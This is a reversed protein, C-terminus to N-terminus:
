GWRLNCVLLSGPSPTSKYGPPYSMPRGLHSYPSSTNLVGRQGRLQAGYSFYRHSFKSQTAKVFHFQVCPLLLWMCTIMGSTRRLRGDGLFRGVSGVAACLRWVYGAAAHGATPGVRSCACVLSRTRCLPARNAAALARAAAATSACFHLRACSIAFAVSLGQPSCHLKCDVLERDLPWELRRGHAARPEALLLLLCRLSLPSPPHSLAACALSAM